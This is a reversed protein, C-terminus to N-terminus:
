INIKALLLEAEDKLSGKAEGTLEKLVERAGESDGMDLYVKALDLKTSLPDDSVSVGSMLTAPENNQFLAAFDGLDDEEPPAVSTANALTPDDLQFDFDLLSADAKVPAEAPAKEVKAVGSDLSDLDFDLLKADPEQPAPAAEIADAEGFLAARLPDDFGDDAPTAAAEPPVAGEALPMNFPAPAQAVAMLEQDLDIAETLPAGAAAPTGAMAEGSQYLPNDADLLLGMAAAKAWQQGKGDFAAHLERAVREFSDKDQRAAYIELLKLRVEHRAPDRNLADKLIEEAQQDRGYAIYVEAEAVPDVEGADIEGFSRTFDSMFSQGGEAAAAGPVLPSAASSRGAILTNPALGLNASAPAKKRRAALVGLLALLLGGGAVGGVLPLNDLLGALFGSGEASEAPAPKAAGQQLSQLKAELAAIRTEADKLSKDREAVQGELTTLTESSPASAAAQPAAPAAVPATAQISAVPAPAAQAPAPAPVVPLAAVAQAPASQASAAAAPEPVGSLTRRADAVSVAKISAASPVKLQAGARLRDPDGAIFARPNQQVLAAMTQALSAGPPQVGAALSNLSSGPEVRLVGARAASPAADNKVRGRPAAVGTEAPVLDQGNRGKFEPPDLLVTYERVSRAAAGRAEVVFRLFPENIPKTSTVRVVGNAGNKVLSFRLSSLASPYDVKLDRFTDNGALGVRLAELEAASLGTVPIDARLTEGLNSRVNIKGLGAWASASFLAAVLLVSLKLPAQRTM